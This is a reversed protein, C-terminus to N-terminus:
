ERITLVPCTAARIVEHTNSGFLARDVAGRGQVGMVILDSKREAALRLIARSARGDSVETDVTCFTKVSEPVLGRLRRLAAARAEARISDVDIEGFAPHSALEPPMEQVHLLTVHADAEEALSLAFTVAELSGTSFDVPCLIQRVHVVQEPSGSEVRRPVVLVPCTAKRLIKEAISGLLLHEFGSRGHTGLVILDAPLAEAQALIEQHVNPSERLAVEVRVGSKAHRDVFTKTHQLLAERDAPTLRIPPLADEGFSPMLGVAQWETSVYLATVEAEYWGALAVAYDLAHGSFESFDIPCLIRKIEIV